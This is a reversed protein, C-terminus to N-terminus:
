RWCCSHQASLAAHTRPLAMCAAEQPKQACRSIHEYTLFKVASNPIIRICNAGNGKMMGVLGETKAMHILGQWTSRYVRENGQVQM